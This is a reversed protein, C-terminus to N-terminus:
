KGSQKKKDDAGGRSLDAYTAADRDIGILPVEAPVVFSRRQDIAQVETGVEFHSETVVQRVDASLM